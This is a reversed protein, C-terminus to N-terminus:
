QTTAYCAFRKKKLANCAAQAANKSGFGGFRARHYVIGDKEFTQTFAAASALLTPASGAAKDLFARAETESPMSAVQIVWGSNPATSSTQVPDIAVSVPPTLAVENTEIYADRLDPRLEPTPPNTKPLAVASGAASAAFVPTGGTRAILDGGGRTSAAPLYRAILARMQADRSAGTRGGMVVAVISRGGSEVSSVLNFGSARIYGTKIGDVGKVNGLLRNHNGYRNRGHTFSRTSFYHYYRGHHERLAIGLTAMDRATTKQASNPLGHANRFTTRRMGLSRARQTMMDAFRSESGGLFEGVATAVDNASKTVLAKIANEVTITQGPRLGIKSPQEAAANASVPIPTSLSVKGAKLADFVLYLTMMKTLSAPYRAADGSSEHLVRGTKADIVIAAYKPNANAQGALMVVLLTLLLTCVLRVHEFASSFVAASAQRM